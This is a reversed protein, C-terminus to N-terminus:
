GSLPCSSVALECCACTSAQDVAENSGGLEIASIEVSREYNTKFFILAPYNEFHVSFMPGYMGHWCPYCEITLRFLLYLAEFPRKDVGVVQWTVESESLEDPLLVDWMYNITPEVALM